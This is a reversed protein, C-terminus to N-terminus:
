VQGIIWISGLGSIFSGHGTRTVLIFQVTVKFFTYNVNQKYQSEATGITFQIKFVTSEQIKYITNTCKSLYLVDNRKGGSAFKEWLNLKM